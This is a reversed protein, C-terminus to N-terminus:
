VKVSSLTKAVNLAKVVCKELEKWDDIRSHHARMTQHHVSFLTENLTFLVTYAARKSEKILDEDTM